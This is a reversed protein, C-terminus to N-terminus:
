RQIILKEQWVQDITSLIIIYVGNPLESVDISAIHDDVYIVPVALLQGTSSYVQFVADNVLASEVRVHSSAPNPYLIGTPESASADDTSTAIQAKWYIFRTTGERVGLIASGIICGPQLQEASIIRGNGLGLTLTDVRSGTTDYIWLYTDGVGDAALTSNDFQFFTVGGLDSYSYKWSFLSMPGDVYEEGLIETEGSELSYNYTLLEGAVPNFGVEHGILRVTSDNYGQISRFAMTNRSGNYDISPRGSNIVVADKDVLLLSDRRDVVALLSMTDLFTHVKFGTKVPFPLRSMSVKDQGLIVRIHSDYSTFLRDEALCCHYEALSHIYICDKDAYSMVGEIAISVLLTDISWGDDVLFVGLRSGDVSDKYSAVLLTSDGVMAVTEITSLQYKDEKRTDVLISRSLNVPDIGVLLAYHTSDTAPVGVDEIAFVLEQVGPLVIIESPINSSPIDVLDTVSYSQAASQGLGIVLKLFLVVIIRNFYYSM